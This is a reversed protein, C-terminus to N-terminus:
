PSSERRHRNFTNEHVQYRTASANASALAVRYWIWPSMKIPRRTNYSTRTEVFSILGKIRGLDKYGNQM